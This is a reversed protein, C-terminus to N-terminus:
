VDTPIYKPSGWVGYWPFVTADRYEIFKLYSPTLDFRHGDSVRVMDGNCYAYEDGVKFGLDKGRYQWYTWKPAKIMKFVALKVPIQKIVADFETRKM